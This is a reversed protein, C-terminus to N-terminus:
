STVLGVGSFLLLVGVMRGFAQKPVRPSLWEGLKSGVFLPVLCVGIRSASEGLGGNRLTLQIWLAVAALSFISILQARGFADSFYRRAWAIIPPGAVGVIGHMLGGTLGGLAAWRRCSGSEEPMADHEGWGAPVPRYVLGAGLVLVLAGLAAAASQEPIYTLVTTGIVQGLVLPAGVALLLRFEIQSWIGPLLALAALTDVGVMVCLADRPGFLAVLAPMTVLASGFGAIGRVFQGAAVALAALALTEM